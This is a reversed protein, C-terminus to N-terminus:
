EEEKQEQTLMLTSNSQDGATLFYDTRKTTALLLSHDQAKYKNWAPLDKLILKFKMGFGPDMTLLKLLNITHVKGAAPDKIEDLSVNELFDNVMFQCLQCALAQQLLTVRGHAAGPAGDSSLARQEATVTPDTPSRADIGSGDDHTGPINVDNTGSFGTQHTPQDAGTPPPPPPASPPPAKPMTGVGLIEQDSHLATDLPNVSLPPNPPPQQIPQVPNGHPQQQASNPPLSNTASGYHTSYNQNAYMNSPRVSDTRSGLPNPVMSGSSAYIQRPENTHRSVQDQHHQPYQHPQRPAHSQIQYKEDSLGDHRRPHQHLAASHNPLIQGRPQETKYGTNQFTSQVPNRPSPYFQQHQPNGSKQSAPSPVAQSAQPIIQHGYQQQYGLVAPRTSDSLTNFPSHTQFSNRSEPQPQQRIFSQANQDMPSQAVNAQYRHSYELNQPGGDQMISVPASAPLGTATPPPSLGFMALPDDGLNIKERKRRVPGEGPAPSPTMALSMSPSGMADTYDPKASRSVDGLANKFVNFLVEVFFAADPHLPGGGIAKIMFDVIGHTGDSNSISAIADINVTRNAAVHLLRASEMLPSGLMERELARQISEIFRSCYGWPALKDCLTDSMKCVYIAATTLDHLTDDNGHAVIDTTTQSVMLGGTPWFKNIENERAKLVSDLFGTPDGLTYTPDKLFRSIYVGGVFTEKRLKEYVVHVDPELSFSSLKNSGVEDLIKDLQEGLISRLEARMSSDWILEPSDVESDFQNVMGEPSDKLLTVLAGPLFRSIVTYTGMGTVNDWLMRSLAKAAGVRSFFSTTFGKYGCLVGLLELWCTSQLLLSTVAGYASLSELMSWGTVKNKAVSKSDFNNVDAQEPVELIKLLKWLSNQKAISNAFGQKSSLILGMECGLANAETKDPFNMLAFILDPLEISSELFDDNLAGHHVLVKLAGISLNLMELATEDDQNQAREGIENKSFNILATAFDTVNNVGNIADEGAKNFVRVYVGGIVVENVLAEYHHSSLCGMEEEVTRIGPKSLRRMTENRVLVELQSRMSANWIVYAEEVNSNVLRLFEKYRKTRLLESLPRTFLIDLSDKLIPVCSDGLIQVALSAHANSASSVNHVDIHPETSNEVSVDYLLIRGILPWLLGHEVIARHRKADQALHCMGELAAHTIMAAKPESRAFTSKEICEFFIQMLTGCTDQSEFIAERGHDFFLIGSITRLCYLITDFFTEAKTGGKTLELVNIAAVLNLMGRLLSCLIFLGSQAVIAEANQPSILCTRFILEVGSQVFEAQDLQAWAHSTYSKPESKPDVNPFDVPLRLCDLLVKYSPYKLKKMDAEYRRCILLQAKILLRMKEMTSIMNLSGTGDSVDATGVHIKEGNELVRLLLEYSKQLTEFMERGSPNKDPHYKRALKRYSRRLEKDGDGDKLELLKVAIEVSDMADGEEEVAEEFKELCAKFVKVPEAIPWDPFREEDCLNRLYFNHCFIEKKLKGYALPPIPCFEYEATNNQLLRRPFDGLHQRIMEVLYARMDQTWIVEPTDAEGTFIQSFKKFGYNVLVHILGEPVMSGLFSRDRMPNEDGATAKFGSQFHQCLHTYEILRAIVSFNSGTYSLAFFFIGSRYLKSLTSENHLLLKYLLNAGTEVVRADSCLLSQSLISLPNAGAHAVASIDKDRGSLIRKATPIPVYPTGSSDISKHLEVLRTLARLSLLAVESPSLVGEGDADDMCLFWRLQWVENLRKWKGTDIHREEVHDDTTDDYDEVHSATVLDFPTLEKELVLRQLDSITFPGRISEAPPPIKSSSTVFWVSPASVADSSLTMSSPEKLSNQGASIMKNQNLSAVTRSLLSEVKEGTNHGWAAFQCLQGISESNLMQEANDPVDAESGSQRSLSVGLLVAALELLRHQTEVSKTKAMSHILITLDPVPGIDSWHIAYLRQMCRICMITVKHDRDVVCLFRRFLLEFLGVPDEWSRIFGDGAQLWLRMYINGVKVEHDLSPYSVSFQQYNWAVNLEGRADIERQMYQMETELAVRLERRTQQSWILDPLSHDQTLVHFFIRYNEPKKEKTNPQSHAIAIRARLRATNTGSAGSEMANDNSSEPINDDMADRELDDLQDQEMKSLGPMSLFPLFGHPVMRKLLRKEPCDMPGSFWLSCLYRSLFRYGEVPSFIAGHFYKLIIASSLAADRIRLAAEPANLSIVQLLLATNELIFPTPSRLTALLSRYNESLAQILASFYEPTTTDYHSCLLSQLLDSTVMQMLDSGGMKGYSTLSAVLDKMLVMGGAKLVVSKNVFETERNRKEGSLGIVLKSLVRFAWFKAFVDKIGVILPICEQFTTLDVTKQYGTPATSLRYITAFLITSAEESARREHVRAAIEEAGQLDGHVLLMAHVLGWLAGLTAIITKENSGAPLGEGNPPISANFERCAEVVGTVEKVVVMSPVPGGSLQSLTGAVFAYARTAVTHVRKLCYLPIAIPAFIKPGSQQGMDNDAREWKWALSRPLSFADTLMIQHGLSAAADLLSVILGDRQPSAYTRRSGDAYELTLQDSDRHRVLAILDVLNHCSVVAAAVREVLWSKSAISLHKKVVGQSTNPRLTTKTVPWSTVITGIDISRRQEVWEQISMSHEMSLTIGLTQCHHQMLGILESRGGRKSYVEYLRRKMPQRFHLVVAAENGAALSIGRIDKFRYLQIVRGQYVEQLGYPKVYLQVAYKTGHATWRQADLAVVSRTPALGAEDQCELLATLVSARPVAHCTFKLKTSESATDVQLVIQQQEDDKKSLVAQWSSLHNYSWQNTVALTDPDLTAFDYEYLVLLRQYGTRWSRLKTVQFQYKTAKGHKGPNDSNSGAAQQQQQQEHEAAMKATPQFGLTPGDGNNAKGAGAFLKSFDSALRQAILAAQDVNNNSDSHNPTAAPSLQARTLQYITSKDNHTGTAPGQPVAVTQVQPTTQQQPHQQHMTTAINTAIPTADNITIEPQYHRQTASSDRMTGFINGGIGVSNTTPGESPTSPTRRNSPHNSSAM